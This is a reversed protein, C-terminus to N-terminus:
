QCSCISNPACGSKCNCKILKLLETPAPAQSMRKPLLFNGKIIWGWDLVPLLVGKWRQVQHFVRFSHFRAADSTPPLNEPLVAKSSTSIKKCFADYRINNLNADSREGYIMLLVREGAEAIEEQSASSNSFKILYERFHEDKQFRKM